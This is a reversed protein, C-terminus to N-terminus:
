RKASPSNKEPNPSAATTVVSAKEALRRRQRPDRYVEQAGIVGPTNGAGVSSDFSSTQVLLETAETLFTEPTYNLNVNSDTLTEGTTRLSLDLATIPTSVDCASGDFTLEGRTWAARQMYVALQNPDFSASPGITLPDMVKADCDSRQSHIAALVRDVLLLATDKNGQVNQLAAICFESVEGVSQSGGMFLSCRGLLRRLVRKAVEEAFPPRLASLLNWLADSRAPKEDLAHVGFLSWRLLSLMSAWSDPSLKSSLVSNLVSDVPPCLLLLSLNLFPERARFDCGSNRAERLCSFILEMVASGPGHCTHMWKLLDEEKVDDDEEDDSSEESQQAQKQAFEALVDSLTENGNSKLLYYDLHSEVRDVGERAMCDFNYSSVFGQQDVGNNAAFLPATMKADGSSEACEMFESYSYPAGNSIPSPISELFKNEQGLMFTSGSSSSGIPSDQSDFNPLATRISQFMGSVTRALVKDLRNAPVVSPRKVYEVAIECGYGLFELVESSNCVGPKTCLEQLFNELLQRRATVTSEENKGFPSNVWKSPGKLGRLAHKLRPNSELRLQFNLFERFRRKVVARRLEMGEPDGIKEGSELVKIPWHYVDYRICYLTYSNNSFDKKTETDIISINDLLVPEVLLSQQKDPFPKASDQSDISSSQDGSTKQALMARLKTIATEMDPFDEYEPDPSMDKTSIDALSEKASTPSSSISSTQLSFSDDDVSERVRECMAINAISASESLNVHSNLDLSCDFSYSKKLPRRVKGCAPKKTPSPWMKILPFASFQMNEPLLPGASAQLAKGLATTVTRKTNPVNNIQNKNSELGNTGMNNKRANEERMEDLSLDMIGLCDIKLERELDLEVGWFQVGCYIILKNLFYPQTLLAFAPLFVNTSVVGTLLKVGFQCNKIEVGILDVLLSETISQLHLKANGATKHRLRPCKKRNRSYQLLHDHLLNVSHIFFERTEINKARGALRRLILSLSDSLENEIASNPGCYTSTWSSVYNSVIADVWLTIEKDLSNGGNQVPKTIKEPVRFDVVSSVSQCLSKFEQFSLTRELALIHKLAWISLGGAGVFVLLAGVVELM